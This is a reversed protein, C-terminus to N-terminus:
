EGGGGSHDTRTPGYQYAIKASVGNYTKVPAEFNSSSYSSAQDALNFVINEYHVDSLLTFIMKTDGSVKANGFSITSQYIGPTSGKMSAIAKEITTALVEIDDELLAPYKARLLAKLDGDIEWGMKQAGKIEAEKVAMNDLNDVVIEDLDEQFNGLSIIQNVPGFSHNSFGKMETKYTNDSVDYLAEGEKVWVGNKEIFHIVNSFRIAKSTQNKISVQVPKEFVIGDPQCNLTSLGIHTASKKAGGFFETVIISKAEKVAGIPFTLTTPSATGGNIEKSENPNVVVPENAKTMVQTMMVSSRKTVNSAITADAAVSVYGNKSFEISHNGKTKVELKFEGNADTMTEIGSTSVKVGSLGNTGDHVHGVIYYAVADLPNTVIEPTPESKRCSISGISMAALMCFCLGAVLKSKTKM